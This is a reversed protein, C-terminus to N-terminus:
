LLSTYTNVRLDREQFAELRVQDLGLQRQRLLIEM